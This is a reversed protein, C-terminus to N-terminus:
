SANLVIEDLRINATYPFMAQEIMRSQDSLLIGEATVYEYKDVTDSSFVLNQHKQLKETLIINYNEMQLIIMLQSNGIIMKKRFSPAQFAFYQICYFIIVAQLVM